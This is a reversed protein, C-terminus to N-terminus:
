LMDKSSLLNSVFYSLISIFLPCFKERSTYNLLTEPLMRESARPSFDEHTKDIHSDRKLKTKLFQLIKKNIKKWKKINSGVFHTSLAYINQVM